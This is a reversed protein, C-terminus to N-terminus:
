ARPSLISWIADELLKKRKKMPFQVLIRERAKHRISEPSNLANEIANAIDFPDASDSFFGCDGVVEPLSGACTTVPICGALMAEAVSLGFGEHLSAQVYVAAESYYDLLEEQSVRGAFIVNTPAISRLYEISNDTCGGVLVFKLDPLFVAARVFPELGKRKLNSWDVAGVTLVMQARPRQPLEIFPDPVGLYVVKMREVSIGVNKEAEQQSYVSFPLIISALSMAWRSVLKGLGGRQHGYDAEPLNAVDYGGIVLISPKRLVKAYLLTWFSNWSAFWCYIIHAEKIGHWYKLFDVPFKRKAYYDEVDFSSSLLDFDLQSFTWDGSHVFFIKYKM